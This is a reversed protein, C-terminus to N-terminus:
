VGIALWHLGSEFNGYITGYYNDKYYSQFGSIALAFIMPELENVRGEQGVSCSVISVAQSFSLPFETM